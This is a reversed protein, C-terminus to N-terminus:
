LILGSLVIYEIVHNPPFCLLNFSPNEPRIFSSKGYLIIRFFLKLGDYLLGRQIGISISKMRM